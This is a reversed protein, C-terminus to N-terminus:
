GAIMTNTIDLIDNTIKEQRLKNYSLTFFDTIDIANNKANQMALMRSAQESTFANLLCSYLRVETYYPIMENLLDKAVPEYKYGSDPMNELEDDLAVPLLRKTVPANSMMSKFESYVVSVESVEGSLYIKDVLELIPYIVDYRPLKSGMNFSAKIEYGLRLAAREIKKGVTVLLYESSDYKNLHRAINEVM